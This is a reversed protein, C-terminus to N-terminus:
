VRCTWEGSFCSLCLGTSPSQNLDSRDDECTLRREPASTSGRSLAAHQSFTLWRAALRRWELTFSLKEVAENLGCIALPLSSFSCCIYSKCFILPLGCSRKVAQAPQIRDLSCGTRAVRDGDRTFDPRWSLDSQLHSSTDRQHSRHQKTPSTWSSVGKHLLSSHSSRVCATM